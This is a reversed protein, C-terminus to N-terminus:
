RQACPFTTRFVAEVLGIASYHRLTPNVRFTAIVIDQLQRPTTGRSGCILGREVLSDHVGMVYGLCVVSSSSECEELLQNGTYFVGVTPSAQALALAAIIM